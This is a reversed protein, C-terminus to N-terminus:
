YFEQQQHMQEYAAELYRLKENIKKRQQLYYALPLILLRLLHIFGVIASLPFFLMYALGASLNQAQVQPLLESNLYRMTLACVFVVLISRTYKKFFM